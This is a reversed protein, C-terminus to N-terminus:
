VVAPSILDNVNPPRMGNETYNNNWYRVGNDADVAYVSNSVTAIFVVNRGGKGFPLNGVVLPQAYIDDDVHIAFLKGFHATNVNATTLATERNNLGARTNDNHQTPVSIHQVNVSDNPTTVALTLPTVKEKKKCGFCIVVLLFPILCRKIM